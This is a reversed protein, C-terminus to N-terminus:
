YERFDDAATKLVVGSDSRIVVRWGDAPIAMEGPATQAAADRRRPERWESLAKHFAYSPEVPVTAYAQRAFEGAGTQATALAALALSLFAAWVSWPLKCSKSFPSYRSCGCATCV